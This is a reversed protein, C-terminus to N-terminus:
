ALVRHQDGQADIIPRTKWLKWQFAGGEGRGMGQGRSSFEHVFPIMGTPHEMTAQRSRYPPGSGQGGDAPTM